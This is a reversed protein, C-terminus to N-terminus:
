GYVLRRLQRESLTPALVPRSQLEDSICAFIATNVLGQAQLEAHRRRVFVEVPEDFFDVVEAVIRLIVPRSLPTTQVLHAVVEEWADMALDHVNRGGFHLRRARWRALDLREL